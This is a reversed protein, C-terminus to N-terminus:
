QVCPGPTLGKDRTEGDEWCSQLAALPGRETILRHAQPALAAAGVAWCDWAHSRTGALGSRDRQGLTGLGGIVPPCLPPQSWHMAGM